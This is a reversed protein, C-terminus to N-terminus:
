PDSPTMDMVVYQGSERDYMILVLRWDVRAVPLGARPRPLFLQNLAEDYDDLARVIDDAKLLSGFAALMDRKFCKAVQRGAAEDALRWEAGLEDPVDEFTRSGDPYFPAQWDGELGYSDAETNLWEVLLEIQGTRKLFRLLQVIMVSKKDSFEGVDIGLDFLLIRLDDVSFIRTLLQRVAKRNGYYEFDFNSHHYMTM